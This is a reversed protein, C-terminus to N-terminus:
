TNTIYGTSNVLIVGDDGLSYEGSPPSDDGLSSDIFYLTDTNNFTFTSNVTPDSLSSIMAVISGNVAQTISVNFGAAQYQASGPTSPYLVYAMHAYQSSSFLIASTNAAAYTTTTGKATTTSNSGKGIYYGTGVLAIAVVIVVFVILM